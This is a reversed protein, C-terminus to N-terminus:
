ECNQDEESIGNKIERFMDLYEGREDEPIDAANMRRIFVEEPSLQDLAELTESDEFILGKIRTNKVRLVEVSTNKTMERIKEQADPIISCDELIVEAYVASGEWILRSIGSTVEEFTGKIRFLRQFVPVEIERVITGSGPILDVILVSKREGSEGFGMPLPAGSYRRTDKGSVKQPLHLHGLAVYDFCSPFADERVCALTGLYLDRSGDDERTTGGAAFLHGMAIIPIDANYQVRLEEAYRGTEYYCSKIGALLQATKEDTSEGAKAIRIDRDRLYPIPCVICGPNGEQDKIAMVMEKPDDPITGVVTINLHSCLEKPASILSPSDHNGATIIVHRCCSRAIRALFQYYIELSRNTPTSSDFIDGAVILIDPKEANILSLLWALFKEQEDYRKKGCLQSGLHWDSTHLIRIPNVIFTNNKM